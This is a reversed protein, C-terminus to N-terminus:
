EEASATDKASVIASKIRWSIDEFIPEVPALGSIGHDTPALGQGTIIIEEDGDKVFALKLEITGGITEAYTTGTGKAIQNLTHDLFTKDVFAARFRGTIDFIQRYSDVAQNTGVQYLLNTNQAFTIDVDQLESIVVDNITLEGHAFTYPFEATPKAPATLAGTTRPVGESGFSLDINGQVTNGVSTTLGLSNAVGGKLTRVVDQESGGVGIEVQLTQATAPAAYSGGFVFPDTGSSPGLISRFIWPNSLTFGVSMSAAQQGYAYTGYEVQGLQALDIRNHTLSLNSVTAQLGFKKDPPATGAYTAEYGYKVYAHAGTRITKVM